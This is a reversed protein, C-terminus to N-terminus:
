GGGGMALADFRSTAIRITTTPEDSDDESDDGDDEDEDEDIALSDDDSLAGDHDTDDHRADGSDGDDFDDLDDDDGEGVREIWIGASLAPQETKVTSLATDPPWFAWRIKGEALSRLVPSVAASKTLLFVFFLIAAHLVHSSHFM